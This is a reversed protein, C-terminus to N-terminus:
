SSGMGIAIAYDIIKTRIDAFGLTRSLTTDWVPIPISSESM